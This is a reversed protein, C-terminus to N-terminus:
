GFKVQAYLFISFLIAANPSRPCFTSLGFSLVPVVPVLYKTHFAPDREEQQHLLILPVTLLDGEFMAHLPRGVKM